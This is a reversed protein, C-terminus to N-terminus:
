IAIHLDNEVANFSNSKPHPPSKKKKKLVVEIGIFLPPFPFAVSYILNLTRLSNSQTYEGESDVQETKRCSQGSNARQPINSLPNRKNLYYNIKRGNGLHGQSIGCMNRLLLIENTM